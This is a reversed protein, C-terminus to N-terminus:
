LRLFILIRVSCGDPKTKKEANSGSSAAASGRIAVWAVPGVGGVAVIVDAGTGAGSGAGIGGFVSATCDVSSARSDLALV